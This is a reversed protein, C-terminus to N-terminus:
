RGASRLLEGLLARDMEPMPLTGAEGPTFWGWGQGECAKPDGSWRLCKYLLM